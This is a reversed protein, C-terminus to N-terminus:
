SRFTAIGLLLRQGDSKHCLGELQARARAFSKVATKTDHNAAEKQVKSCDYKQAM